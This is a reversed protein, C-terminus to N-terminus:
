RPFRTDGNSMTGDGVTCYSYFSASSDFPCKVHHLCQTPFHLVIGKLSKTESAGEKGGIRSRCLSTAVVLAGLSITNGGKKDVWEGCMGLAVIAPEIKNKGGRGKQREIHSFVRSQHCPSSTLLPTSLQCPAQQMACSSSPSFYLSSRSRYVVPLYLPSLTWGVNEWM